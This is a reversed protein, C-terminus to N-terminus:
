YEIKKQIMRNKRMNIKFFLPRGLAVAINVSNKLEEVIIYDKTGKYDEPNVTMIIIKGRNKDALSNNDM